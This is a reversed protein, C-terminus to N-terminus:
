ISELIEKKKAEFEEESIAGLEKLKLLKEIKEFPDEEEQHQKNTKVSNLKNGLKGFAGSIKGGVDKLTGELNDKFNESEEPEDTMNEMEIYDAEMESDSYDFCSKDLTKQLKGAMPMMSAFNIGGSIVGGVVPLAKSVANGVAKKTINVSLVKGIKKLIPYWFTKTLAKQPIKKAATKALQKTLLRVGTAAGSVGFMVGSYLILQNRVKEDDLEEGNWIDPAGYIYSLEQALRLTMGFFQMVDAPVTAAMALGGPIGAAFSLASSESTRVLILKKSIKELEERSVGAEVPGIDVIEQISDSYEAFTEALFKNRNVKVGPIQVAGSVVAELSLEKAQENM